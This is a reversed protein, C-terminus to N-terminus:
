PVSRARTYAAEVDLATWDKTAFLAPGLAIQLGLEKRAREPTHPLSALVEIGRRALVVAEQNAFVRAANQAAM